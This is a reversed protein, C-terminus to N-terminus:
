SRTGDLGGNGGATRSHQKLATKFRVANQDERIEYEYPLRNWLGTVRVTYFNDRIEHMGHQQELKLDDAVARTHFRAADGNVKKPWKETNVRSKGHLVKYILLL